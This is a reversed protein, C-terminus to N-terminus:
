CLQVLCIVLQIKHGFVLMISSAVFPFDGSFACRSWFSASDGFCSTLSPECLVVLVVVFNSIWGMLPIMDSVCPPVNDFVNLCAM